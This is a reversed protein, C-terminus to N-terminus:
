ESDEANMILVDLVCDPKWLRQTRQDKEISQHQHLRKLKKRQQRLRKQLNAKQPFRFIREEKQISFSDIISFAQQNFLLSLSIILVFRIYFKHTKM